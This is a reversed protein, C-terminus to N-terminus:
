ADLFEEIDEQDVATITEGVVTNAGVKNAVLREIQVNGHMHIVSDEISLVKVGNSINEIVLSNGNEGKKFKYDGITIDDLVFSGHPYDGNSIMKTISQDNLVKMGAGPPLVAMASNTRVM